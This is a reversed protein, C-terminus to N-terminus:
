TKKQAQAKLQAEISKAFGELAPNDPDKQRAMAIQLKAGKLDGKAALEEAKSAFPRATPVKVRDELKNSAPRSLKPPVDSIIRPPEITTPNTEVLKQDYDARLRDDTLVVYAETGRKFIKELAAREASPRGPHGDPHFANAFAHFAARIEDYSAAREVQFLQYYNLYDILALWDFLADSEM